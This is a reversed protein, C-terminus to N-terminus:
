APTEKMPSKKKPKKSLYVLVDSMLIILDPNYPIGLIGTKSKIIEASPNTKSLERVLLNLHENDHQIM